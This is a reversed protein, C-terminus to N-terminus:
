ARLCRRRLRVDIPLRRARGAAEDRGENEKTAEAETEAKAPTTPDDDSPLDIDDTSWADGSAMTATTTTSPARKTFNVFQTTGGGSADDDVNAQADGDDPLDIDAADWNGESIVTRQSLFQIFFEDNRRINTSLWRL